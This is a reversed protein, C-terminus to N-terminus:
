FFHFPCVCTSVCQFRLKCVSCIHSLRDAHRYCKLISLGAYCYHHYCCQCVLHCHCTGGTWYVICFAKTVFSHIFSLSYISWWNSRVWERKKVCLCVSVFEDNVVVIRAGNYYCDSLFSSLFGYAFFTIFYWNHIFFVLSFHLHHYLARSLHYQCWSCLLLILLILLLVMVFVVMVTTM